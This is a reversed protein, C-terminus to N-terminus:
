VLRKLFSIVGYCKRWQAIFIGLASLASMFQGVEASM